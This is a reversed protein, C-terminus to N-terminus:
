LKKWVEILMKLGEPDNRKLFERVKGGHPAKEIDLGLNGALELIKSTAEPIEEDREVILEIEIVDHGFDVSDVDINFNKLKYKKRTTKWSGFPVYGADKIGEEFNGAYTIDLEKMIEKEDHLEKYVDVSGSVNDGHMGIKLEYSDNRKRFFIDKKALSYGDKDYYTDNNIIEKVFEAKKSIREMGEKDVFFKKEVEIM